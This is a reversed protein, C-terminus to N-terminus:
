CRLGVARELGGAKELLRPMLSPHVVLAGAVMYACPVLRVAVRYNKRRKRGWREVVCKRQVAAASQVVNIGMLFSLDSPKM